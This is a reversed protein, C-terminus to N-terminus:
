GAGIGVGLQNETAAAATRPPPKKRRLWVWYNRRIKGDKEKNANWCIGFVIDRVDGAAESQDLPPWGHVQVIEVQEGNKDGGDGGHGDSGRTNGM